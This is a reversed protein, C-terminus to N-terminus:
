KTTGMIIKTLESASIFPNKWDALADESAIYSVLSLVQEPALSGPDNGPMTMLIRSYLARMPKGEWQAVFDEGRLAPGAGGALNESHCQVCRIKYLAIGEAIQDQAAPSRPTAARSPLLSSAVAILALLGLACVSGRFRQFASMQLTVDSLNSAWPSGNRNM